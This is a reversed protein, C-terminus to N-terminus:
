RLSSVRGRGERVWDLVGVLRDQFVLRGRVFVSELVLDLFVEVGACGLVEVGACGLVEMGACDLVEVEVCALDEVVVM